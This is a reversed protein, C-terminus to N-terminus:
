YDSFKVPNLMLCSERGGKMKRNSKLSWRKKRNTTNRKSTLWNMQKGSNKHRWRRRKTKSKRPQRKTQKKRKREERSIVRTRKRLATMNSTVNKELAFRVKCHLRSCWTKLKRSKNWFDREKLWLKRKIKTSRKCSKYRKMRWITLSVLKLM